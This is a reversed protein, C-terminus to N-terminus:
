APRFPWSLSGWRGHEARVEGESAERAARSVEALLEQHRLEATEERKYGRCTWYDAPVDYFDFAEGGAPGNFWGYGMFDDDSAICECSFALTPFMRALGELDEVPFSVRTDFGFTYTGPASELEKFNWTDLLLDWPQHLDPGLGGSNALATLKHKVEAARDYEPGAAVPVPVRIALKFRDIDTQRGFVAVSIWIEDALM